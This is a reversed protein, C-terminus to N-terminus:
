RTAIFALARELLHDGIEGWDLYEKLDNPDILKIKTVDGDPDRVFEGMPEVKCVSRTQRVTRTPEYIDQYGIFKQHLVKMNTEEAAERVVAQEYTEGPEIGCGPFSWYGNEGKYILVLKDGSFCLAHVAQLIKGDLQELPDAERYVIKCTEGSRNRLTSEIELM